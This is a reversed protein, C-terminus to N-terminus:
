ICKKLDNGPFYSCIYLNTEPWFKQLGWKGVSIELRVVEWIM